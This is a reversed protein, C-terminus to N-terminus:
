NTSCGLNPEAGLLSDAQGEREGETGEEKSSMSERLYIFIIKFFCFVFCLDSHLLIKGCGESITLFLVQLTQPYWHGHKKSNWFDM